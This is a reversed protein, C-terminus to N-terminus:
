KANRNIESYLIHRPPAACIARAPLQFVRRHLKLHAVRPMLSFTLRSSRSLGDDHLLVHWPPTRTLKSWPTFDFRSFAPGCTKCAHRSIAPLALRMLLLVHRSKTERTFAALGSRVHPTASPSPRGPQPRGAERQGDARVNLRGRGASSKTVGGPPLTEVKLRRAQLRVNPARTIMNRAPGAVLCDSGNADDLLGARADCQELLAIADEDGANRCAALAFIASPAHVRVAGRTAPDQAVLDVPGLRFIHPDRM